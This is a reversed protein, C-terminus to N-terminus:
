LRIHLVVILYFEGSLFNALRLDARPRQFRFLKPKEDDAIEAAAFLRLSLHRVGHPRFELFVPAIVRDPEDDCGPVIHVASEAECQTEAIRARQVTIPFRLEKPGIFPDDCTDRKAGGEAIM